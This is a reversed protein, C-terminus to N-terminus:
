FITIIQTIITMWKKGLYYGFLIFTLSWLFGGMSALLAFKSYKIQTSGTFIATFHRVGPIYYGFVFMWSGYGELWKKTKILRSETISFFAGRKHLLKESLIRGLFFSITIGTLSGLFASIITPILHLDKQFALYGAFTLISEGPIPIGIISLTM